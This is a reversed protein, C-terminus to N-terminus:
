TSGSSGASGPRQTAISSGSVPTRVARDITARSPPRSMSFISSSNRAVPRQETPRPPPACRCRRRSRGAPPLARPPPTGPGRRHRRHRSGPRGALSECREFPHPTTREAGDSGGAGPLAPPIRYHRPAFGVQLAATVPSSLLNKKHVSRHRTYIEGCEFPECSGHGSRLTRRLRFLGRRAELAARRRVPDTSRRRLRRIPMPRGSCRCSRSGRSSSTRAHRSRAVARRVPVAGTTARLRARPGSPSGGAHRVSVGCRIGPRLAPAGVAPCPVGGAAANSPPSVRRPGQAANSRIAIDELSADPRGCFSLSGVAGPRSRAAAPRSRTPMRARDRM